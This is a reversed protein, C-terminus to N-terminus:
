LIYLRGHHLYPVACIKWFDLRWSLSGVETVAVLVVKWVSSGFRNRTVTHLKLRVPSSASTSRRQTGLRLGVNTLIEHFLM